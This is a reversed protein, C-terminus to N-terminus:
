FQWPVVVNLVERQLKLSKQLLVDWLRIKILQAHFNLATLLNVRLHQFYVIYVM